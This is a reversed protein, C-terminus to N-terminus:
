YNVNDLKAEVKKIHNLMDTPFPYERQNNVLDETQPAGFYDEDFDCIRSSIKDMGVGAYLLIDADVFTTPNTHTQKRIYQTFALPTM